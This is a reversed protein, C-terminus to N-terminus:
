QHSGNDVNEKIRPFRQRSIKDLNKKEIIWNRGLKEAKIRGQIILKRVHDRSFGLLEAAEASTVYNAKNKIM